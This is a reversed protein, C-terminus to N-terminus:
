EKWVRKTFKWGYKAVFLLIVFYVGYQVTLAFLLVLGVSLNQATMNIEQIFSKMAQEWSEGLEKTDFYVDKVITVSFNTYKLQDEQEVKAQELRAIQANNQIKQSTLREVLELKSSILKTLSEADRSTRALAAIEDFASTAETLSKDLSEGKKRLIDAESEMQSLTKKITYTYEQLDKPNMEKLTALTTELAGAAVKFTFSCRRDGMTANEFIVDQRAKFGALTACAPQFDRSEIYASYSKVEFDEANDGSPAPTQVPPMIPSPMSISRGSSADMAIEGAPAYSLAMGASGGEAYFGDKSLSSNQRAPASGATHSQLYPQLMKLGINACVALVILGVVIFVVKLPTMRKLHSTDM